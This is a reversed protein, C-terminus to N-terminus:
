FWVVLLHLMCCFVKNWIPFKTREAVKQGSNDYTKQSKEPGSLSFIVAATGKGEQTGKRVFSKMYRVMEKDIRGFVSVERYKEQCWIKEERGTIDTSEGSDGPTPVTPSM